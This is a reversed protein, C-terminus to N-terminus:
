IIPIKKLPIVYVNHALYSAKEAKKEHHNFDLGGEVSLRLIMCSNQAPNLGKPAMPSVM